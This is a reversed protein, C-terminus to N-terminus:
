WGYMEKLVKSIVAREDDEFFRGVVAEVRTVPPNTAVVKAEALSVYGMANGDADVFLIPVGVPYSRAGRKTFVLAKGREYRARIAPDRLDGPDDVKLLWNVEVNFGM